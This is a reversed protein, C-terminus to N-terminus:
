PQQFTIKLSGDATGSTTPCSPITIGTVPAGGSAVRLNYSIGSQMQYDAYGDGLEPKFGTFFHDEGGDWTVILEMGPLPRRKSDIIYVM